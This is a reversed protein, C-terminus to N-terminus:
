DRSNIIGLTLLLVGIGCFYSDSGVGVSISGIIIIVLERLSM